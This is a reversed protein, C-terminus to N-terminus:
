AVSEEGLFIRDIVKELERANVRAAEISEYVDSLSLCLEREVEERDKFALHRCLGFSKNVKDM